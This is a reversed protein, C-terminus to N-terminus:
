WAFLQIVDSPRRHIISSNMRFNYQFRIREAKLPIRIMAEDYSAVSAFASSFLAYPFSRPCFSLFSVLQQAFRVHSTVMTYCRVKGDSYLGPFKRGMM